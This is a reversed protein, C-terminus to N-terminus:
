DLLSVSCSLWFRFHGNLPKNTRVDVKVYQIGYIRWTWSLFSTKTDFIDARFASDKIVCSDERLLQLQRRNRELGNGGLRKTRTKAAVRLSIASRDGEKTRTKAAVRLSIASSCAKDTEYSSIRFVFHRFQRIIHRFRSFYSHVIRSTM